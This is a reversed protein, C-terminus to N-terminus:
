QIAGQKGFDGPLEELWTTPTHVEVIDIASFVSRSETSARLHRMSLKIVPRKTINEM